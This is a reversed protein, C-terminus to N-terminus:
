TYCVLGQLASYIANLLEGMCIVGDGAYGPNCQCYFSGVTNTCEAREEAECNNDSESACENIDTCNMGDGAFGTICNCMFSGPINTCNANPHCRDPYM